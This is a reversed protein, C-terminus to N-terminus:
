VAAGGSTVQIAGRRARRTLFRDMVKAVAKADGESITMLEEVMNPRRIPQGTKTSVQPYQSMWVYRPLGRLVVRAGQATVRIDRTRLAAKRTAGSWVLPYTHGHKRLKAQQYTNYQKRLAYRPSASSYSFGAEPVGYKDFGRGAKTKGRTRYGYESAGRHTFHKPLIARHWFAGAHEWAEGMIYRWGKATLELCQRTVTFQIPMM